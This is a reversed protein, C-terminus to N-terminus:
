LLQIFFLLEQDYGPQMLDAQATETWGGYRENCNPNVPNCTMSFSLSKISVKSQHRLQLAEGWRVSEANLPQHVQSSTVFVANSAVHLVVCTDLILCCCAAREQVVSQVLESFAIVFRTSEYGGAM